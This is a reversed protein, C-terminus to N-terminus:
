DDAPAISTVPDTARRTWAEGAAAAIRPLVSPHITAPQALLWEVLQSGAVFHCSDGGTGAEFEAWVVVVPQIWQTIHTNARIRQATQRAGSKVSRADDWVWPKQRGWRGIIAQDGQVTVPGGWFKSDLVFVGAPGTVLHDINGHGTDIDHEVTWESPLRDLQKQTRKEGEAGLMWNDVWDPTSQRLAIFTAITMGTFVGAMYLNHLILLYLLNGAVAVLLLMVFVVLFLRRKRRLWERRLEDYRRMASTGAKVKKSKM